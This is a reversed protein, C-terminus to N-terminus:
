ALTLFSRYQAWLPRHLAASTRRPGSHRKSSSSIRKTFATGLATSSQKRRPRCLLRSNAPRTSQLLFPCLSRELWTHTRLLDKVPSQSTVTQSNVQRPSLSNLKISDPKLKQALGESFASTGARIRLYQCRWPRGAEYEDLRWRRRLRRIGALAQLQSFIACTKRQIFYLASVQSPDVGLM